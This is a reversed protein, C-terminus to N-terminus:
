LSKNQTFLALLLPIIADHRIVGIMVTWPVCSCFDDGTNSPLIATRISTYTCLQVKLLDVLLLQDVVIIRQNRVSTKFVLYM